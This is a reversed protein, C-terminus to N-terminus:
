LFCVFFFNLLPSNYVNIVGIHFTYTLSNFYNVKGKLSYSAHFSRLMLMYLVELISSVLYVYMYVITMLHMFILIPVEFKLFAISM